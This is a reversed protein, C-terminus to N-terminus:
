DPIKLTVRTGAPTTHDDECIDIIEVTPRKKRDEHLMELRKKTVSMGLSHKKYPSSNKIHGSAERGIGNDEVTIQLAETTRGFCVKIQKTAKKSPLLGHLISNEIYPQILLLPVEENHVDLRPDVEIDYNFSENFRLAELELYIKILRIEEELTVNISESTELVTRLLNSFKTLYRLASKRDNSTVFHQISSLCNFIFHPNMQARLMRKELNTNMVEIQKKQELILENKTTLERNHRSRNRYKQYVMFLSILLLISAAILTYRLKQDLEHKQNLYALELQQNALEQDKKYVEFKVQNSKFERAKDENFISDKYVNFLKNHEMSKELNKLSYYVESLVDHAEKILRLSNTSEATELDQMAYKLAKNPEGKDIYAKALNYYVNAEIQKFNSQQTMALSQNLIEIAQDPQAKYRYANGINALMNAVGELDNAKKLLELSKGYYYLASDYQEKRASVIGIGSYVSSLINNDDNKNHLRLIDHFKQLALDHEQMLDHIVAINYQASIIKETSNISDALALSKLHYEYAKSYDSLRKYVIGLNQYQSFELDAIGLVKASKLAKEFNIIAEPYNGERGYTIGINSYGAVMGRQYSGKKAEEIAKNFYHRASDANTFRYYKGIQHYVNVKLSDNEAQAYTNKISDVVHTDQAVVSISCLSVWIIFLSNRLPLFGSM